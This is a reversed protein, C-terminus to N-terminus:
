VNGKIKCNRKWFWWLNKLCKKLEILLLLWLFRLLCRFLFWFNIILNGFFFFLSLFKFFMFVYRVLIIWFEWWKFFFMWGIYVINLCIKICCFFCLFIIDFFVNDFKLFLNFVWFNLIFLLLSELINVKKWLFLVKNYKLM